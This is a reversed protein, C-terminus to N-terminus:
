LSNKRYNYSVTIIDTAGGTAGTSLVAIRMYPYPADLPCAHIYATTVDSGTGTAAVAVLAPTNLGFVDVWTTGDQSGQWKTKVVLSSANVVASVNACLSSARVGAGTAMSLTPGGTTTGTTVTNLSVATTKAAKVLGQNFSM